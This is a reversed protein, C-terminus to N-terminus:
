SFAIESSGLFRSASSFSLSSRPPAFYAGRRPGGRILSRPVPRLPAALVLARGRDPRLDLPGERGGHAPIDLVTRPSSDHRPSFVVPRRRAKETLTQPAM